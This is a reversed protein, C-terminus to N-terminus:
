SALPVPHRGQGNNYLYRLESDSILRRWIGAGAIRGNFAFNNGDGGISFQSGSATFWSAATLATSTTPTGGNVQLRLRGGSYRVTLMAWTDLATAAPFAVAASNTGDSSRRIEYAASTSNRTICWERAGNGGWVSLLAALTNELHTYAWLNITFSEYKGVSLRPQSVGNSDLFEGATGPLSIATPINNSPGTDTGIAGDNLVLDVPGGEAYNSKRTGSTELPALYYLLGRRLRMKLPLRNWNFEM